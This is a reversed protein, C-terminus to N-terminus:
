EVSEVAAAPELSKAPELAEALEGTRAYQRAHGACDSDYEPYNSICCPSEVDDRDFVEPVEPRCEDIEAQTVGVSAEADAARKVRLSTQLYLGAVQDFTSTRFREASARHSAFSAKRREVLRSIEARSLETKSPANAAAVAAAAFLFLNIVFFIALWIWLPIDTGLMRSMDPNARVFVARLGSLAILAALFAVVLGITLVPNDRTKFLQGVTHAAVPLVVGLAAAVIYTELTGAGYVQFVLSLLLFEGIGVVAAIVLYVWLPLHTLVANEDPMPRKKLGGCLGSIRGNLEGEARRWDSVVGLMM